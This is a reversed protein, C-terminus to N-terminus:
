ATLNSVIYFIKCQTDGAFKFEIQDGGNRVIVLDIIKKSRKWLGPPCCVRCKVTAPYMRKFWSCCNVAWWESPSKVEQRKKNMRTVNLYLVIILHNGIRLRVHNAVGRVQNVTERLIMRKFAINYVKLRLTKRKEPRVEM